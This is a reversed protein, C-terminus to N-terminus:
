QSTGPINFVEKRFQEGRVQFNKYMNYSASAPSLLVIDGTKAAEYSKKVAEKMTQVFIYPPLQNNDNSNKRISAWIKEGTTPFLILSRVNSTLIKKALKAYDLGRDFGGLLLILHKDSFSEMAAIASEPITSISDNYFSIGNVERIFELRHPLSKFDAIAQAITESSVHYLKGIIVAPMVNQLNFTGKLPVGSTKMIMECQGNHCYVLDDGKVFGGKSQPPGFGFPIKQATSKKVISAISQSNVNYILIDDKSQYVTINQKARRYSEFDGHYDLHEPLIDQLVAVHPSKKLEALQYSSFEVVFITKDNAGDLSDLAPKGINGVFRADLRGKRLVEYIISATTSKGKTGTIGIVTGPCLDFFLSINSIVITEPKINPLLRQPIGSTKVIVTTRDIGSLYQKGLQLKVNQDSDIKEVLEKSLNEISKQDSLTIKKYPFLRRLFRFTSLGERGLGVIAVTQNALRVMIELSKPIFHDNSWDSLIKQAEHYSFTPLDQRDVVAQLVMPLRSHLKKAKEISLFFAAQVEQRTGVCEFPKIGGLGLLDIAMPVLSKEDWLNKSFIQTALVTENVFPYLILYAFLCKPCKCCWSNTKQGVNCSRFISFYKPYNSFIKAIQLEYLPRLLSFYDSEHTLYNVVYQRFSKEFVFSKSYQHNIEIGLYNVNGENSSRECSVTITGAGVLISTLLSAFSAYATFPTHGNLYGQANLELLKKDITRELIIARLYPHLKLIEYVAPTPNLCWPIIEHGTNKLLELSVISDKGGSLPFLIQRHNLKGTFAQQPKKEYSDVQYKVFDPSRFNIKNTFFFQGLGNILLEKWWVLQEKDLMGAEIVIEPSCTAKWYSILEVLGLHFVLNNLVTSGVEEIKKQSVNHIITTPHFRINPEIEFDFEIELVDNNFRWDYRRYYFRPHKKRLQSLTFSM